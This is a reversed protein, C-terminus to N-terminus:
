LYKTLVKTLLRFSTKNGDHLPTQRHFSEDGKKSLSTGCFDEFDYGM